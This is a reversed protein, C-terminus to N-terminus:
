PRGLSGCFGEDLDIPSPPLPPTFGEGFPFFPTSLSFAKSWRRGLPSTPHNVSRSGGGAWGSVIGLPIAQILSTPLVCLFGNHSMKPYRSGDQLDDQATGPARRTM